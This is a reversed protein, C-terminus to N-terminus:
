YEWEGVLSNKSYQVTTAEFFNSLTNSMILDMWPIPNSKVGFQGKLGIQQMRYDAVYRVYNKIEEATAAKNEGLSYTLDIFKDELEIVKRATDYIEAKFHNNVVKPNEEVFQRFLAALGEVHLSEDVISWQNVSVTGPVRGLQSQSLLMAFSGFLNVGEMLIQKALYSAINSENSLDVNEIMFEHKDKMEKFSLFESMFEATDYGLTDNLRKYGKMHTVERNAFSLLMCRADAQKFIPLLREVYSACVNTDAQTFLRLVGKIYAKESDSIVGSRWQEVDIRLDAEDPIWHSREHRDLIDHFNLYKPIFIQNEQLLNSM